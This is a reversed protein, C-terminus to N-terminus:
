GNDTMEDVRALADEWRQFVGLQEGTSARRLEFGSSSERTNLSGVRIVDFQEDITRYWVCGMTERGSRPDDRHARAAEYTKPVGQRTGV